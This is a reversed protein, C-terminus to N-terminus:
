ESQLWKLAEERFEAQTPNRKFDSRCRDIFDNARRYFNKHVLYAPQKQQNRNILALGSPNEGGEDSENDYIQWYLAFPCGWSLAAAAATRTFEAQQDATIAIKQTGRHYRRFGYEGIFVRKDWPYKKDTPPM